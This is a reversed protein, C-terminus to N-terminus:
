NRAGWQVLCVKLIRTLVLELAVIFNFGRFIVFADALM